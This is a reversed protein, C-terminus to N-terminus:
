VHAPSKVFHTHQKDGEDARAWMCLYHCPSVSIPSPITRPPGQKVRSPAVVHANVDVSLSVAM